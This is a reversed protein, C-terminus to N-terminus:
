DAAALFDVVRGGRDVARVQWGSRMNQLERLARLVQQGVDYTTMYTRWNGSTDRAQIEVEKDVVNIEM